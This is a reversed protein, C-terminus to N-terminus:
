LEPATECAFIGVTQEFTAEFRGMQAAAAHELAAVMAPPPSIGAQSAASQLAVLVANKIYGGPLWYRDSLAGVAPDSVSVSEPLHRRWIARRRAADPMTLRLKHLVRRELAPSVAGSRNTALIVISTARELLLLLRREQRSDAEGAIEDF